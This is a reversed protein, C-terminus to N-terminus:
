CGNKRVEVLISGQKEGMILSKGEFFRDIELKEKKTFHKIKLVKRVNERSQIKEAGYNM